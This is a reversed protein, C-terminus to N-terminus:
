YKETKVNLNAKVTLGTNSRTALGLSPWLSTVKDYTVSQISFFSHSTKSTHYFLVSTYMYTM